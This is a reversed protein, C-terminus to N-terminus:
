YFGDQLKKVRQEVENLNFIEGMMGYEKHDWAFKSPLKYQHQRKKNKDFFEQWYPDDMNAIAKIEGNQM